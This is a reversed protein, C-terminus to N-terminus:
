GRVMQVDRLVQGVLAAADAWTPLIAGAARAASAQAAHQASDELVARLGHAFAIPDDPAVLTGAGSPVTGPVAGATTSVIPVGHLLAEDFVIGYGEFRTALAFVHARRYLAALTDDGVRGALRVRDSLGAGAIQADLAAEHGPEWPSGVIVAEWPLDAVQALAAILVDHGKRPHLLGVSLILPPDDKPGDMPVAPITPRGPRVVTIRAGEVGYDRMLVERIYPSPVIVHAAHALNAQELAHLRRAEAQPLGSEHALPHHVLAVIPAKIRSLASTDLAGFALGDIILHHDGPVSALRDIAVRMEGADPFPFGGPLPLHSAAWGAGCLAELLSRDYHYGGTLATFDGPVAFSIKQSM